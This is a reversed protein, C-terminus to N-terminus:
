DPKRAQFRGNLLAGSEFATVTLQWLHCEHRYREPGLLGVLASRLPGTMQAHERRAVGAAHPDVWFTVDTFGAAVLDRHRDAATRLAVPGGFAARLALMEPSDGGTDGDTWDSALYRGGPCLARLAETFFATEDAIHILVGKSFAVDFSQDPLPLPGPSVLRYTIRDAVGAADALATARAILASNVELGTVHRAAM